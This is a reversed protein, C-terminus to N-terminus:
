TIYMIKSSQLIVAREYRAEKHYGPFLKNEMSFFSFLSLLFYGGVLSIPILCAMTKLIKSEM